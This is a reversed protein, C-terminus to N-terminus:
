GYSTAIIPPPGRPQGGCQPEAAVEVADDDDVGAIRSIPLRAADVTEGPVWADCGRLEASFGPVLTALVTDLEDIPEDGAHGFVVAERRSRGSHGRGLRVLIM